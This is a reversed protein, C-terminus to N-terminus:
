DAPMNTIYKESVAPVYFIGYAKLGNELQMNPMEVYFRYYPMFTKDFRSRYILEVKLIYKEDPLEEPVTTIYKKQLLLEKAKKPTIIPYDGLKKSLDTKDVHIIFLKGEDDCGFRIRNFNYGLIKEEINGTNEFVEHSINREGKFTYDSFVEPEPSQMNLLNSYKKILYELMKIAEKPNTADTLSYEKTLDIPPNFCISVGLSSNVTIKTNGCNAEAMYPKKSQEPIKEGIASYKVEMSRLEEEDPYVVINQVKIGIQKAIAKAKATMQESDASIEADINRFVSLTSLQEKETWSNANELESIDYAMYCEIGVGDNENITLMPLSADAERQNLIFIAATIICTVFVAVIKWSLFKSYKIKSM